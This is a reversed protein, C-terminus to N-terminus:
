YLSLANDLIRKLAEYKKQFLDHNINEFPFIANKLIYHLNSIECHLVKAM